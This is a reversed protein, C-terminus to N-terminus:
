GNNKGPQAQKRFKTPTCGLEAIFHNIFYDTDKYGVAEAISYMKMDTNLLLEKAKEIRVKHLYNKFSMGYKTKFLQGLYAANVYYKQSFDKLTLNQAYNEKIDAEVDKLVSSSGNSRLQALYESFDLLLKTINDMDGELYLEEFASDSIYKLVEQQNIGSDVNGAIQILEFLIYNMVMKITRADCVSLKETLRVVSNRIDDVSNTEVSHLLETVCEKEFGQGASGIDEAETMEENSGRFSRVFNVVMVAKASEYLSDLDHVRSGPIIVIPFSLEVNLREKLNELYEQENRFEDASKELLEDSYIIGVDYCGGRLSVDFICHFEAGTIMLCKSYLTKQMLRKEEDSSNAVREDTEDLELSIYRVGTLEGLNEKMLSVSESDCKGKLISIVARSFVEKDRLIDKENQKNREEHVARAKSLSELLEKREVPKLLYDLVNYKLATRAFEFDDFGTLMIFTADSVNNKRVRELLELGTMIPMKIDAIVIDPQINNIMELAELGNGAMGAIEFGEKEWDIIISLGQLIFPEDDVLLVKYMWQRWKETERIGSLYFVQKM